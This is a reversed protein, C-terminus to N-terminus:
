AEIDRKGCFRVRSKEEELEFYAPLIRKQNGRVSYTV